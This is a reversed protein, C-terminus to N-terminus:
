SEIVLYSLLLSCQKCSQSGDAFCATETFAELIKVNFPSDSANHSVSHLLLRPSCIQSWHDVLAFRPDIWSTIDLSSTGWKLDSGRPKQRPVLEQLAEQTVVLATQRIV